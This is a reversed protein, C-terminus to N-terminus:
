LNKLYKPIKAQSDFFHQRSKQRKEMLINQLENKSIMLSSWWKWTIKGTECLNLDFTPNAITRYWSDFKLRISARDRSLDEM